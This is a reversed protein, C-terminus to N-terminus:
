VDERRFLKLQAWSYIWIPLQEQTVRDESDIQEVLEELSIGLKIQHLIKAQAECIEEYVIGQDSSRYLLFYHERDHVLRPFPNAKWYEVSKELFHERFRVLDCDFSLLAVYPQLFLKESSLAKPLSCVPCSFIKQYSQDLLAANYVLVKDKEHYDEKIWPLLDDGLSDLSWHRPRHKLLYPTIIKDNIEEIGFLRTLFPYFQHFCNFLRFWYLRQYIEIQERAKLFAGEKIWIACEKKLSDSTEQLPQDLVSAFWEQMGVLESPVISQM